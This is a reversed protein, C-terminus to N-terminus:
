RTSGDSVGLVLLLEPKLEKIAQNAREETKFYIENLCQCGIRASTNFRSDGHNYYIYYKTQDDNDWDPEFDAFDSIKTLAKQVAAAHEAEEETRFVSGMEWRRNDLSADIWRDVVVIGGSPHVSFYTEGHKPKWRGAPKVLSQKLQDYSEQSIEIENGDITITPM